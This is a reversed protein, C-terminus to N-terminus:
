IRQSEWVSDHGGLIPLGILVLVGLISAAIDRAPMM